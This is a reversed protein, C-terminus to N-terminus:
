HHWLSYWPGSQLCFYVPGWVSVGAQGAAECSSYTPFSGGYIFGDAGPPAADAPGSVGLGLIAAGALATAALGLKRRM